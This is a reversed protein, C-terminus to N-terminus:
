NGLNWGLPARSTPSFMPRKGTVFQDAKSPAIVFSTGELDKQRQETRQLYGPSIAEQLRHWILVDTAHHTFWLNMFPTNSKVMKLATAGRERMAAGSFMGDKTRGGAHILEALDDIQGFTPGLTNAAASLGHRDFQGLLFDGVISGMGSRQAGAAIAAFPHQALKPIPNNGKILDRVGEAFVGFLIAAAATEARGGWRDMRGDGITGYVERGWARTIMDAPWIKFQYFLKLAINLASGPEFNKGFLIARIRASPMPIAYGARDTYTSALQLGLDERAKAIDAEGHGMFRTDGSGPPRAEDIYAKVQNDSLKLADSPFLFTRDGIKTWEVGHLAKWEAEGIGFGRMVRQEKRGIDAWAMGRKSGLHSAFMAEAGGRQNDIVANVGTLNFFTSEAQGLWGAPADAVDYASMQQGIDHEAAVLTAELAARKESGEAGQTFGEFLSAYRQAFPIGWYRAEAAKTPLSAFHTAFINGLKSLRQVAMINAVTNARARNVPKQSSGDIQAFRNDLWLQGNEFDELEGSSAATKARLGDMQATIKEKAAADAGPSNLAQDLANFKSSLAKSENQLTALVFAKDREYAERPRTGFEKMLAARRAATSLGQVVTYTATANGYDKNYARWGPGDKFHLERTASARKAVNPYMPEDIPRGYDYHVGSMMPTWMDFLADRVAQRDATGFTRKLDLRPLTENIWKEAGAARIKDADHSTRTIYGSYSRIWAGERNLTDISVKQWKHVVKAIALAQADKTIGPNGDRGRNIEFLEDTWKDELARSAFIKLLGGRRLDDSFGGVIKRRLAVYQADVSLRGRAFPLNSGVLKAEFALRVAKVAFKPVLSKISEAAAGYFRHRAIEKRMDLIAGRRQLAYNDAAEKLFEDRARDYAADRDMGDNEYGDARNLIEDLADQVEARSKGTKGAIEDFCDKRSRAM